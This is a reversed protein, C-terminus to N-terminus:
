EVKRKKHKKQVEIHPVDITAKKKRAIPESSLSVVAVSEKAAPETTLNELRTKTSGIRLVPRDERPDVKTAKTTTTTVRAPYEPTHFEYESLGRSVRIDNVARNITENRLKAVAAENGILADALFSLTKITAQKKSRSKANKQRFYEPDKLYKERNKQRRVERAFKEKAEKRAKEPDVDRTEEDDTPTEEEEDEDDTFIIKEGKSPNTQNTRAM